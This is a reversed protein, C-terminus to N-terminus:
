SRLKMIINMFKMVGNMRKMTIVKMICESLENNGENCM